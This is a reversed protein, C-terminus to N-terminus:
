NYWTGYNPVLLLCLFCAGIFIVLTILFKKGELNKFQVFIVISILILFAIKQFKIKGDIPKSNLGNLLKLVLQTHLNINKTM